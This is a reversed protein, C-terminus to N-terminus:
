QREWQVIKNEKYKASTSITNCLWKDVYANDTERELVNAEQSCPSTKNEVSDATYPGSAQMFYCNVLDILLFPLYIPNRSGGGRGMGTAFM